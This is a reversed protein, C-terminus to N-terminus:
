TRIEAMVIVLRLNKKDEEKEGSLYPCKVEFKIVVAEKGM